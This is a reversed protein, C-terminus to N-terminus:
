FNRKWIVSADMEDLKAVGTRAMTASLQGNMELLKECVAEKGGKKLPEMLARGVSVATAGLALAKYADMGSEIGCDVFIEIKGGVAKVIEPLIMLPPVSYDMIGHHHSIVIGKVGAEVCKKADKVSLVGKIIFPVKSAKVYCAIDEFSQSRMPLDCVRDFEGKGNFSHDIDMGVAFAGADVAHKIRRLVEQQNEHPKIIKITKAGTKIIAELEDDEGMGVWHVVDAMKAGKAFEVMGNEHTGNLHSLAATMIPSKFTEGFLTFTTDPLKADIYRTELLLSDFYARTIEDSHWPKNIQM